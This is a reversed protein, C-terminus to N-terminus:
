SVGKRYSPKMNKELPTTVHGKHLGVALGTKSEMRTRFSRTFVGAIRLKM